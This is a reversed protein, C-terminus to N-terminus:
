SIKRRLWSSLYDIAIITIIIILILSASQSYEFLRLKASLEVGIGGAGVLGLVTAVRVNRDFIYLIYGIAEQLISPWAAYMVVQLLSAGTASVGEYVGAEVREMSEAFFKGLFGTTHLGLALLGPLAGLGLASVFILALVLDPIARLFNLLERTAQYILPHPSLNKAALPALIFSLSLSLVTGWLAIAVTVGMLGLYRRIESFDPSTYRSLYEVIDGLGWLLDSLSLQLYIIAAVTILLILGLSVPLWNFPKPPLKAQNM